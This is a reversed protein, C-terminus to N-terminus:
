CIRYKSYIYKKYRFFIKIINKVNKVFLLNIINVKNRLSLIFFEFYIKIPIIAIKIIPPITNKIKLFLELLIELLSFLVVSYALIETSSLVTLLVSVSFVFWFEWSFVVSFSVFLLVTSFWIVSGGEVGM